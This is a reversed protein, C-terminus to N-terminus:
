LCPLPPHPSPKLTPNQPLLHLSCLIVFTGTTNLSMKYLMRICTNTFFLEVFGQWSVISWSNCFPKSGNNYSDSLLRSFTPLCRALLIPILLYIHSWFEHKNSWDNGDLFLNVASYDLQLMNDHSLCDSHNSNQQFLWSYLTSRKISSFGSLYGRCYPKFFHIPAKWDKLSNQILNNPIFMSLETMEDPLFGFVDFSFRSDNSVTSQKEVTTSQLCLSQFALIDISLNRVLVINIVKLFCQGTQWSAECIASISTIMCLMEFSHFTIWLLFPPIFSLGSSFASNSSTLIFIKKLCTNWAGTIFHWKICLKFNKLM